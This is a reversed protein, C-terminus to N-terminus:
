FRKMLRELYDLELEPRSPDSSRRRLEDFIRRARLLDSENPVGHRSNEAAGVGNNQDRQLPDRGQEGRAQQGQANPDGASQGNAQQRQRMEERIAEAGQQLAELADGQPGVAEGPQNQGLAQGADKMAREADGLPAPIQGMGDGLKRMFEGLQSRLQEQLRALEDASMQQGGEGQGQQGQGQAQQGSRGQQGPQQGRQRGQQGFREELQRRLQEALSQPMGQQGPQQQGMRNGEQGGRRENGQQHNKFTDDMLRRQQETLQQLQRMMEQAAQQQPSMPQPRGARLNEMMERLQSLMDRAADKAGSKMLERAREIMDMLDQREILRNPDIEAQEQPQDMEGREMQEQMQEMMAQLMKDIAQKLDDLLKELEAEDVDERSLAELIQRELERLERAAMSVEGDEIRLAVEWLLKQVAPITDAREIGSYVLRSAATKLGLFTVPDGYYRHPRAALDILINAIDRYQDPESVLRRRQEIVARAVPHNFVREPLIIRLPESMGTQGGEDTAILAIEVPLGAWPHPTLDHFDKGEVVELGRRPLTLPLTVPEGDAVPEGSPDLLRLRADVSAVGYDDSASFNLALTRRETPRPDDLFSATPKLDPIVALSWSALDTGDQRITLRSGKEIGTEIQHSGPGIAEFPRDAVGTGDTDAGLVLSVPGSGGNVKAILTSNIPVEIKGTLPDADETVSHARALLLPPEGTYAPPDIWVDVVPPPGAFLPALSVDVARAVRGFPDPSAVVLGTVIVLGLVVRLGFPDLRVMAPDPPGVRLQPLQRILRMRHAAWIAASTPDTTGAPRDKLSALPRHAATSDREVRRLVEDDGTGRWHTIGRRLAWLFGAAFLILLLLQGYGGTRAGIWSPVDLLALGVFLLVLAIAPWLADVAHEWALVGRARTLTRALRRGDDRDLDSNPDAASESSHPRV